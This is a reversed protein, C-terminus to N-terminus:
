KKWLLSWHCCYHASLITGFELVMPYEMHSWFTTMHLVENSMLFLGKILALELASWIATIWPRIFYEKSCQFCTKHLEEYKNWFQCSHCYYSASWVAPFLSWMSFVIRCWFAFMDLVRYPLIFVWYTTSFWEMLCWFHVMYLIGHPWKM